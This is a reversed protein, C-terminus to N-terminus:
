SEVFLPKNVDNDLMIIDGVEINMLDSGMLTTTGLEVSLQVPVEHLLKRLRLIWETTM